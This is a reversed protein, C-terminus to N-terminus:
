SFRRAVVSYALTSLGTVGAFIAVVSGAGTNPLVLPASPTPTTPPTVVPPQGNEFTVSRACGVSTVWETRGDAFRIQVSSSITYNGDAAYTHNSTQTNIVTGDGYDTRYGVITANSVFVNNINVTVRRNSEANVDTSRCEGLSPQVVPPAQVVVTLTVWVRQEWCGWMDGNPSYTGIPAGTTVISDSLGQTGGPVSFQRASGAVYSLNVNRGGCNITMNDSVTSANTASVVAAPNFSSTPGGPLQVRVKTGHAVGPGSGGQNQDPNAGNHVYVRLTMRTGDACASNVVNTSAGPNTEEKGRFFDSEDGESPTGTFINFAPYTTGNNNGAQYPIASVTGGSGIISVATFLMISAVITRKLINKLEM